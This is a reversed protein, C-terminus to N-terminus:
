ESEKVASITYSTLACLFTGEKTQEKCEELIKKVEAKTLDNEKEAMFLTKEIDYLKDATAFDEIVLTSPLYTIQTFGARHLYGKLEIAIRGNEFADCWYIEVIRSLRSDRLSLSFTSWDNDYIVCIGGSELVRFVENIVKEPHSIHQLTRDIRCRDFKQSEFPLSRADAHYLFLNNYQAYCPNLKAEELMFLSQDVGSLTCRDSIREAMRFLDAGMGCGIELVAKAEKLKLLDYSREKVEQFYPIADISRLCALYFAQKQTDDVNQFGVALYDNEKKL